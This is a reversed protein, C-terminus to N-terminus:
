NCQISELPHQRLYELSNRESSESITSPALTEQQIDKLTEYSELLSDSLDKPEMAKQSEQPAVIEM